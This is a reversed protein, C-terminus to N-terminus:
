ACGATDLLGRAFHVRALAEREAAQHQAQRHWPRHNDNTLEDFVAELLWDARTENAILYRYFYPSASNHIM